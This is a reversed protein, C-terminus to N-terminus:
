KGAGSVIKQLAEVLSEVNEYSRIIGFETFRKKLEPNIGCILLEKGSERINVQLRVWAPDLEPESGSMGAFNLVIYRCDLSLIVENCRSIQSVADRGASGLFSIVAIHQKQNLFFQFTPEGV